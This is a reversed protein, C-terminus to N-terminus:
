KQRKEFLYAYRGKDAVRFSIKYYCTFLLWGSQEVTYYSPAKNLWASQEVTYYSPAKNLWASQEVTPASFRGGSLM